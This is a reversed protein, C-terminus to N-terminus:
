TYHSNPNIWAKTTGDSMRMIVVDHSQTRPDTPTNVYKVGITSPGILTPVEYADTVNILSRINYKQLATFKLGALIYRMHNGNPCQDCCVNVMRKFVVLVYNNDITIGNSGYNSNTVLYNQINHFMISELLLDLIDINNIYRTNDLQDSRKDIYSRQM